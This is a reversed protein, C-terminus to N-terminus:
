EQELTLKRLEDNHGFVVLVEGQHMVDDAKPNVSLGAASRIGLVTVGHRTRIEAEKMTRGQWQPPVPLDAISYEASLEMSAFETGFVLQHAVQIGMERDPYIVRDAGVKQLIRGELENIAKAMVYPVGQEKLQMTILVSAELDHEMTVIAGDFRGVDLQRLVEPDRADACVTDTVLDAVSELKKSDMDVVLVEIDTHALTRVINIGFQGLGVVFFERSEMRQGRKEEPYRRRGCEESASNLLSFKFFCGEPVYDASM